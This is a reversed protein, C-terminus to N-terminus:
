TCYLMHSQCAIDLMIILYAVQEIYIFQLVASQEVQFYIM